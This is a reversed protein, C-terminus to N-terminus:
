STATRDLRPRKSSPRGVMFASAPRPLPGIEALRAMTRAGRAPDAAAFRFMKVLVAYRRSHPFSPPDLCPEISIDACHRDGDIEASHRHGVTIWVAGSPQVPPAM